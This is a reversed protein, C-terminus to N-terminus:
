AAAGSTSGLLMVDTASVARRASDPGAVRDDQRDGALPTSCAARRVDGLQGRLDLAPAPPTWRWPLDDQRLPRLAGRRGRQVAPALLSARGADPAGPKRSSGAPRAGGAIRGRSRWDIGLRPAAGARRHQRHDYLLTPDRDGNASSVPAGPPRSPERQLSSAGGGHRHAVFEEEEEGASALVRGQGGNTTFAMGQAGAIRARRAADAGRRRAAGQGHGGGGASKEVVIRRNEGHRSRQRQAHDRRRTLIRLARDPRGPRRRDGDQGRHRCSRAEGGQHLGPMSKACRPKAQEVQMPWPDRHDPGDYSVARALPLRRLRPRRPTSRRRPQQRPAARGSGTTAAPRRPHQDPGRLRPFVGDPVSPSTTRRPTSRPTSPAPTRTKAM